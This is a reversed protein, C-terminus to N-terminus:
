VGAGGGARLTSAKMDAAAPEALLAGSGGVISCGQPHTAVVMELGQVRVLHLAHQPTLALRGVREMAPTPGPLGLGRAARMWGGPLSVRPMIRAVSASSARRLAWLAGGLLVFVAMVALIQRAADMSDGGNRVGGGHRGHDEVCGEQRM